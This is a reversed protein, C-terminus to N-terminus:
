GHRVRKALTPDTEDFALTVNRDAEFARSIIQQIAETANCRTQIYGQKAMAIFEDNSLYAPLNEQSWGRARLGADADRLLLEVLDLPLYLGRVLRNETPKTVEDSVLKVFFADDTLRWEDATSPVSSQHTARFRNIDETLQTNPFYTARTSSQSSDPRRMRKYQVLIFGHRHHNYYILDSGTQVELAEKDAYFVTMRRAPDDPDVFTMMDTASEGRLWTEFSSWDDRLSTAETVSRRRLGRLFPVTADISSGELHVKSDMGGIELGLAVVDQQERILTGVEGPILDPRAIAALRRLVDASDPVLRRLADELSRSTQDPLEHGDGRDLHTRLDPRVNDVIDSWALAASFAEAVKFELGDQGRGPTGFKKVVAAGVIWGGTSRVLAVHWTRTFRTSGVVYRYNSSGNSERLLDQWKADPLEVYRLPDVLM